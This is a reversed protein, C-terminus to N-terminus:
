DDCQDGAKGMERIEKARQRILEALFPNSRLVERTLKKAPPLKQSIFVERM